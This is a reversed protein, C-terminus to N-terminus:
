WLTTTETMNMGTKYEVTFTSNLKETINMYTKNETM